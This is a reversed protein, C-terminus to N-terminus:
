ASLYRERRAEIQEVWAQTLVRFGARHSMGTGPQLAFGLRIAERVALPSALGFKSLVADRDGYQEGFPVDVVTQYTARQDIGRALQGLACETCSMLDLTDLDVDVFWLPLAEDLFEAGRGAVRDCYDKLM